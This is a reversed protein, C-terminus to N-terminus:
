KPLELRGASINGEAVGKFYGYIADIEEAVRRTGQYGPMGQAPNGELVIRVFNEKSQSRVYALISPGVSGNWDAGHCRACDMQRLTQWAAFTRTDVQNGHEVQYTAPEGAAAVSFTSALLLSSLCPRAKKM